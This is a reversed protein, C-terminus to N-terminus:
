HGIHIVLGSDKQTDTVEFEFGDGIIVGRDGVQGGSEGYFPTRDLVVRIPDTHAMEEIKDCLHDQGPLGAVIGVVTASAETTEYGLFETRHHAQKLSDIPGKAGMVTTALKGSVEGHEEMARRYGEWDFALNHE